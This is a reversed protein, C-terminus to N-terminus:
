GRAGAYIFVDSAIGACRETKGTPKGDKNLSNAQIDLLVELM